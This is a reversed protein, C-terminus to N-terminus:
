PLGDTVELKVSTSQGGNIPSQTVPCASVAAVCDALCRLVIRDGPKTPAPNAGFTGDAQPPTDMFLNIPDPVDLPDAVGYPQLAEFLNMRCSRHDDIGFRQKYLNPSCACMFLDHVGVDDRVIEFVPERDNNLLPDGVQLQWRRPASRTQHVSVHKRPEATQIAVFDAVQQGELDIVSLFEGAHVELAGGHAGPITAERLVHATNTTM